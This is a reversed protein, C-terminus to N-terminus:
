KLTQYNTLTIQFRSEGKRFQELKVLRLPNEAFYVMTQKSGNTQRYVRILTTNGQADKWKQKPLEEIQYTKIEDDSVLTYETSKVNNEIDLLSQVIMSLTDLPQLQADYDLMKSNDGIVAEIQHQDLHFDYHLRYKSSGEMERWYVQPIVDHQKRLGRVSERMEDFGLMKATIAPMAVTDVRYTFDTFFVDHSMEGAGVGRIRLAYTARYNQVAMAPVVFLLLLGCLFSYRGM